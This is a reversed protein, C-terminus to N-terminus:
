ARCVGLLWFVDERLYTAGTSSLATAVIPWVDDTLGAGYGWALATLLERAAHPLEIGDRLLSPIATLERDFADEISKDLNGEWNIRSTDVPNNRLQTTIVRALLFTGEGQQESIRIIADGIKTADMKGSCDALRKKVYDHVATKTEAQVMDTGLDITECPGLSQLLSLEEEHAVERSSVLVLCKQSLLRLFEQAIKIAEPGGEDLGDVVIMLRCPCREIAGLLEWKNRSGGPNEPLLNRRVLQDDVLQCLQEVTVGRAHVHAHVSGEGPDAHELGTPSLIYQREEPNSLSVVRGVIASKGSGAPGTVVFIGPKGAQMWSVIQNIQATRGTFFFGEENPAVGRAALLLHEVVRDPADPNHLPNPFQMQCNATSTETTKPCQGQIDWEKRLTFLLDTGIVGKNKSSWRFCLDPDHPNDPGHKLLKLLRAGFVGDKSREYDLASAVVGVWVHPNGPPLERQVKDVVTGAAIIGSGSFCTDLVLMIQNAGTRAALGALYDSTLQPADGPEADTPVLHLAGEPTTEGHGSWLVVLSGGRGFHEKPLATKLESIGKPTDPDVIVKVNYGRNELIGALDNVESIAKPLPNFHDYTGVGIGVFLAKPNEANEQDMMM